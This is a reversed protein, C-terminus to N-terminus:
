THRSPGQALLKDTMRELGAEFAAQENESLIEKCVRYTYSWYNLLGGLFRPDDDALVGTGWPNYGQDHWYDSMMMDVATSALARNCVGEHKYLPNGNSGDSNPLDFQYWFAANNSYSALRVKGSGEIGANNGDDLVFWKAQ